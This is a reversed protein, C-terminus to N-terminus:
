ETMLLHRITVCNLLLCAMNVTQTHQRTLLFCPASDHETQPACRTIPTKGCMQCHPKETNPKIQLSSSLSTLVFINQSIGKAGKQNRIELNNPNSVFQTEEHM